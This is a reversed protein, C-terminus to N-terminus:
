CRKREHHRGGGGSTAPPAGGPARREGPGGFLLGSVARVLRVAPACIRSSLGGTLVRAVRGGGMLAGGALLLAGAGAFLTLAVSYFPRTQTHIYFVFGRRRKAARADAVVVALGQAGADAPDEGLLMALYRAADRDRGLRHAGVASWYLADRDGPHRSLVHVAFLKVGRAVDRLSTSAVLDHATRAWDIGLAAAARQLRERSVGAVPVLLGTTYSGVLSGLLEPPGGCVDEGLDVVYEGDANPEPVAAGSDADFLRGLVSCPHTELVSVKTQIVNEGARLKIFGSKM